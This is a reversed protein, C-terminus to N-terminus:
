EFQAKASMRSPLDGFAEDSLIFAFAVCGVACIRKGDLLGGKWYYGNSGSYPEDNTWPTGEKYEETDKLAIMAEYVQTPTPIESDSAALRVASEETLVDAQMLPDEQWAYAASQSTICICLALAVSLILKKM